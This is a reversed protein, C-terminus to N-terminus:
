LPEDSWRPCQRHDGDAVRKFIASAIQEPLLRDTFIPEGFREDTGLTLGQELHELCWAHPGDIEPRGPDTCAFVGRDRCASLAV